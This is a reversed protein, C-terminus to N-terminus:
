LFYLFNPRQEHHVLVISAIVVFLEITRRLDFKTLLLELLPVVSGQMFILVFSLLKTLCLRCFPSRLKRKVDRGRGSSGRKRENVDAAEVSDRLRLRAGM